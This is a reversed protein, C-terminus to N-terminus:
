IWILTSIAANCPSLNNSVHDYNKLILSKNAAAAATYVYIYTYILDRTLTYYTRKGKFNGGAAAFARLKINNNM